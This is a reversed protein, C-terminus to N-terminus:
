DTKETFEIRDSYKREIYGVNTENIVKGDDNIQVAVIHMLNGVKHPNLKLTFKM